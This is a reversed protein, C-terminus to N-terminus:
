NYAAAVEECCNSIACAEYEDDDDLDECGANESCENFETLLRVAEADDAIGSDEECQAACEFCAEFEMPNECLSLCNEFICEAIFEEYPCVPGTCNEEDIACEDTSGTDTGTGVDPEPEAPPPCSVSGDSQVISARWEGNFTGGDGMTLQDTTTINNFTGAVVAGVENPCFDVTISGGTGDLIAGGTADAVTANFWTGDLGETVNFTGPVDGGNTDINANIVMASGTDGTTLFVIIDGEFVVAHFAGEAATETSGTSSGEVPGGSVEVEAEYAPGAPPETSGGTDTSSGGTDGNTTIVPDDGCATLGLALSLSAFLLTKKM